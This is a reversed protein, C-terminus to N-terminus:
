VANAASILLPTRGIVLSDGPRLEYTKNRFRLGNLECGNRSDVDTVYLLQNEVRILAHHASVFDDAELAIDNDAAAGVRIQSNSIPYRKGQNMGSGVEVFGIPRGDAASPWSFAVRTERPYGDVPLADSQRVLTAAGASLATPVGPSTAAPMSGASIPIRTRAAGFRLYAIRVLLLLVLAALVALGIRAFPPIQALFLDVSSPAHKGPVAGAPPASKVPSTPHSPEQVPPIPAVKPATSPGPAAPTGAPPVTGTIMLGLASSLQDQSAAFAFRGHTAGALTSLSESSKAALKGWAIADVAIAPPGAAAAILQVHTVESGEDKGDSVVLIRRNPASSGRLEALGAAIADYLKTEGRADSEMSLKKIGEAVLKPDRTFELLRDFHTGFAVIGVNMNLPVGAGGTTLSKTLADQIAAIASSQMSGSKDVCILLTTLPTASAASNAPPVGDAGAHGVVPPPAAAPPQTAVPPPTAAPPPTAGPAPTVAPAPTAVPPPTAVPAQKPAPPDAAFAGLSVFVICAVLFTGLFRDFM